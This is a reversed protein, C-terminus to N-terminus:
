RRVQGVGRRLDGGLLGRGADMAEASRGLGDVSLPEMSERLDRSAKETCVWVDTDTVSDRSDSERSRVKELVGDSLWEEPAGDLKLSWSLAMRLSKRLPLELLNLREEREM